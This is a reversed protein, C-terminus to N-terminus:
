VMKNKFPYWPDEMHPNKNVQPCIKVNPLPQVENGEQLCALKDDLLGLWQDQNIACIAPDADDPGRM